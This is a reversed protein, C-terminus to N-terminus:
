HKTRIVFRRCVTKRRRSRKLSFLSGLVLPGFANPEPVATTYLRINDYSVKGSGNGRFLQIKLAQGNLSPDLVSADVVLQYDRFLGKADSPTQYEGIVTDGALLRVLGNVSVNQDARAAAAFRLTYEGDAAFTETLTQEIGVLGSLADGNQDVYSGFYIVQEGQMAGNAGDGDTGAFDPGPLGGDDPNALGGFSLQIGDVWQWDSITGFGNTPTGATNDPVSDIEFDGNRVAIPQGAHRTDIVFGSTVDAGTRELFRHMEVRLTEAEFLHNRELDTTESLDSKLNYLEVGGHEYSQILKSDGQIIAGGPLGGQPSEHPYHIVVPNDGRDLTGGKALIDNLAVGDLPQNPLAVGAANLLTPFLDHGIIPTKNEVGAAVGPGSVLIPVRIGGEYLTGKGNRLPGNIDDGTLQRLGGNDSIFAVMTNDDINNAELSQRVAGLSQDVSEMMAAYIAVRDREVASLSDFKEYNGSNLKAAYKDVLAQPASLPTHVGYHSLQLFFPDNRGSSQNIFGVAERTLRDTLYEGAYKTGDEPLNNFVPFGGNANAYWNNGPNGQSGGGFNQDFGHGLPSLDDGLHWKGSHATAYGAGQFAEAITTSTTPLDRVYSVGNNPGGIWQSIKHTTPAQGLLLSARTPSCVPSPSYAQTFTTGGVSMAKLNPTEYFADTDGRQNAFAESYFLDNDVWGLDDVVFLVVNTPEQAHSRGCQIILSSAIVPFLLCYAIAFRIVSSAEFHLLLFLIL